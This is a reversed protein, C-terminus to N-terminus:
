AAAEIWGGGLVEDEAYFAAVQGPTVARVPEAFDVRARDGTLPQIRAAVPRGAYRVKVEAPRGASALPEAFWNLGSVEMTDHFVEDAEAVVVRNSHPDTEVVYMPRAGTLELGRRQGVTYFAAGKHRGVVNGARDVAEGPQLGPGSGRQAVLEAATGPVFCIDQSEAKDATILGLRHAQARVEDKTYGGLPFLLSDLAESPTVALFYSQDKTGDRGPRLRPRAGSRDIRAYHGTALYAADLDRAQRLLRDFKIFQNCRACPNPTRGSQYEDVFNDIVKERFAASYNVPYFPIGLRDAVRRADTADEVGCCGKGTAPGDWLRMTVGIVEFGQEALLAAAVSSDVGGSMAVVVRPGAAKV